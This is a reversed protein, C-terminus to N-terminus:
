ISVGVEELFQQVEEMVIVSPEITGHSVMVEIPLYTFTVDNNTMNIETLFDSKYSEFHQKIREQTTEEIEIDTSYTIFCDGNAFLM